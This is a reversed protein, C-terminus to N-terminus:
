SGPSLPVRVTAVAQATNDCADTARYTVTYVRGAGTMSREARLLFSDGDVLQVDGSTRGDATGRADDPESSTVSVLSVDPQPDTDDSATVLAEVPVLKHNPPWLIGPAVAVTLSPPNADCLTHWGLGDVTDTPWGEWEPAPDFADWPNSDGTEVGPRRRLTNDMTSTMGSGWETGPDVGVQGISDIIQAGKRLLLADDGSLPFASTTQDARARIAPDAFASALVFTDRPGVTGALFVTFSPSSSGNTYLRVNYGGASLNVPAGSGNYVELARNNGTGEVYESLFLETPAAVATSPAWVAAAIALVSLALDVRRGPTATRAVHRGEVM